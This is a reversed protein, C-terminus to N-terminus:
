CEYECSSSQTKYPSNRIWRLAQHQDEEQSEIFHEGTYVKKEVLSELIVVM